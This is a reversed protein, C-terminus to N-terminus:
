RHTGGRVEQHWVVNKVEEVGDQSGRRLEATRHTRRSRGGPPTVGDYEKERGYISGGFPDEGLYYKRPEMEARYQQQQQPSSYRQRHRPPPKPRSAIREEGESGTSYRADENPRLKRAAGQNNSSQHHHHQQIHQQHQQQLQQQQKKKKDSSNSRLKGVLRRLSDSFSSSKSKQTDQDAFRTKQNMKRQQQQALPPSPSPSSHGRSRRRNHKPSYDPPPELERPSSYRRELKMLNERSRLLEVSRHRDLRQHSQDFEGRALQQRTTSATATRGKWTVQEDEYTRFEQLLRSLSNLVLSHSLNSVGALIPLPPIIFLIQRSVLYVRRIQPL